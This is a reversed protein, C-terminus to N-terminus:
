EMPGRKRLEVTRTEIGRLLQEMNKVDKTNARYGGTPKKRIPVHHYHHIPVGNLCIPKTVVEKFGRVEPYKRIIPFCHRSHRSYRVRKRDEDFRQWFRYHYNPFWFDDVRIKDETEWYHYTPLAYAVMEGNTAADELRLRADGDLREDADIVLIWDGTAKELALNRQASQKWGPTYRAGEQAFLFLNVKGQEDKESRFNEIEVITKDISIGDVIVIEDFIPYLNNLLPVVNHQENYTIVCATIKVMPTMGITVSPTGSQGLSMLSKM